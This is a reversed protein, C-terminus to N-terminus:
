SAAKVLWHACCSLQSVTVHIRAAAGVEAPWWPYRALKAWVVKGPPPPKLVQPSEDLGDAASPAEPQAPQRAVAPALPGTFPAAQALTPQPPQATATSGSSARVQAHVPAALAGSTASPKTSNIPQAAHQAQAPPVSAAQSTPQLSARSTLAHPQFSSSAPGSFRRVVPQESQKPQLKSDPQQAPVAATSQAPEPQRSPAQSPVAHQLQLQQQQQSTAPFPSAAQAPLRSGLAHVLSELAFGAQQAPPQQHQQLLAQLRQEPTSLYTPLQLQSGGARSLLQQQLHHQLQQHLQQQYFNTTSSFDTGTGSNSAQTPQQQTWSLDQAPKDPSSSTQAAQRSQM